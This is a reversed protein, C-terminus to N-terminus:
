KGEGHEPISGSVLTSQLRALRVIADASGAAIARQYWATATRADGTVGRAGIEHLFVPDYTEALGYAAAANGTSAVRQFFERASIIDGSSLLQGGRQVMLAIEDAPVVDTQLSKQPVPPLVSGGLEQTSSRPAVGNGSDDSSVSSQTAVASTTSGHREPSVAQMQDKMARPTERAPAMRPITNKPEGASNTPSNSEAIAPSAERPVHGAPIIAVVTVLVCAAFVCITTITIGIRQDFWKSKHPPAIDTLERLFRPLGDDYSELARNENTIRVPEAAHPIGLGEEGRDTDRGIPEAAATTSIIPPIGDAITAAKTSEATAATDANQQHANRGTDTVAATTDPDVLPSETSARTLIAAAAQNRKDAQEDAEDRVQVGIPETPIFRDTLQIPEGLLRGASPREPIARNEPIAFETPQEGNKASEVAATLSGTVAHEIATDRTSREGAPGDAAGLAREMPLRDGGVVAARVGIGPAFRERAPTEAAVENAQEGDEGVVAAVIAESWTEMVVDDPAAGNESVVLENWQEAIDAAQEDAKKGINDPPAATAVPDVIPTEASAGARITEAALIRTNAQEDTDLHVSCTNPETPVLRDTLRIPEGLSRGASAREPVAHIESIALEFAREENQVVEVAAARALATVAPETTVTAGEAAAEPPMSETSREATEAIEIAGTAVNLPTGTAVHVLAADQITASITEAAIVDVITPRAEYESIPLETRNAVAEAVPAAPVVILRDTLLIPGNHTIVAATHEPAAAELVLADTKDATYPPTEAIPKPSVRSGTFHAHEIQRVQEDIEVIEVAATRALKRLELEEAVPARAAAAEPLMSEISREATEAIEIAGTAVNLPTGTAAHDFATSRTSWDGAPGDTAGLAQEIPLHEADGPDPIIFDAAPEGWEVREDAEVIENDPIDRSPTTSRSATSRVLVDDPDIGNVAEGKEGTAPAVVWVTEIKEEVHRDPKVTGTPAATTPMEGRARTSWAIYVKRALRNVVAPNGGSAIAIADIIQPPFKADFEEDDGVADLQYKIFATVEAQQLHDVAICGAFPARLVDFPALMQPKAIGSALVMPMIHQDDLQAFRQLDDFCRPDLEEANNLLLTRTIGNRREATLFSLLAWIGVNSPQATLGVLRSQVLIKTAVGGRASNIPDQGPKAAIGLQHCYIRVLESFDMDPRCEVVTARFTNQIEDNIIRAILDGGVQPEGTLLVLSRGKSLEDYIAAALFRHHQDSRLYSYRVDSDAFLKPVDAAVGTTSDGRGGFSFFVAM